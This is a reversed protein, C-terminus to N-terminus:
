SLKDVQENLEQKPETVSEGNEKSPEEKTAWRAARAKETRDRNEKTEKSQLLYISIAVLACVALLIFVGIILLVKRANM